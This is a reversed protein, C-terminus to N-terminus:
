KSNQVAEDMELPEILEAMLNVYHESQNFVLQEGKEKESPAISGIEDEEDVDPSNVRTYDWTSRISREDDDDDDLEEEPNPHISLESYGSTAVREKSHAEKSSQMVSSPGHTPALIGHVTTAGQSTTAARDKFMDAVFSKRNDGLEKLHSFSVMM